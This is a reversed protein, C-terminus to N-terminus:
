YSSQNVIVAIRQAKQSSIAIDPGSNTKGDVAGVMITDTSDLGGIASSVTFTGNALPYVVQLSTGSAVTVDDIRPREKDPWRAKLRIARRRDDTYSPVVSPM